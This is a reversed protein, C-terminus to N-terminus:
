AACEPGNFAREGGFMPPYATAGFLLATMDNLTITLDPVLDYRQDWGPDGPSTNMKSPSPFIFSTLDSLTLRNESTGSSATDAPWGQEGCLHQDRDTLGEYVHAETSGVFGDGDCDFAEAGQPLPEDIQTDGDDDLGAYSGDVREPRIGPDLPDSGCAAEDSDHVLDNDDDPDCADGLGDNDFDGQGPNPVAPCNDVLDPVGDLDSDSCPEGVAMTADNVPGQYVGSTSDAPQIPDGLADALKVATLDLPSTGDGLAELTLRVLVGSGTAPSLPFTVAGMEFDGDGDPVPDGLDLLSGGATGLLFDYEVVTVQLVAPDYLLHAEIGTLSDVSQIVVDVSLTTGSSVSTCTDITGVSTATNSAGTVADVSVTPHSSAGADIGPIALVVALLVGILGGAWMRDFRKQTM